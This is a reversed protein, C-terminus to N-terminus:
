RMLGGSIREAERMAAPLDGRHENILQRAISLSREFDAKSTEQRTRSGRNERFYKGRERYYSFENLSADSIKM